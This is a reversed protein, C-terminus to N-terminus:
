EWIFKRGRGSKVEKERKMAEFKTKFVETHILIQLIALTSRQQAFALFSHLCLFDYFFRRIGSRKKKTARPLTSGGDALQRIHIWRKVAQAM